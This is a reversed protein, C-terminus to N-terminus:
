LKLKLIYSGNIEQEQIIYKNISWEKLYKIDPQKSYVYPFYFWYTYGHPLQNFINFYDEKKANTTNIQVYRAPYFNLYRSYFEFESASAINYALINNQKFDNKIIELTTKANEQKYSSTNLLTKIYQHNYGSFYIISSIIIIGSYFIRKPSIKELPILCILLVIPILYLSTRQMLPYLKLLSMIIATLITYSFLNSYNDRKKIAYILGSVFLILAFLLKNNPYFYYDFNLKLTKLWSIPTLQLFKEDWFGMDMQSAHTQAAINIYFSSYVVIPFILVAILQNKIKSRYRFIQILLYPIIIFIAPFATLPLFALFIGLLISRKISLKKIEIESLILITIIILLTDTSYQKFEQCYYILQYNIAFLLNAILIVWINSIFRRSLIYFAPISLIGSLLPIFRLTYENIGFINTIIKTAIMFLPPAAQTYNLPKFYAFINNNDFINLALSCEDHWLPRGAVFAKIRLILGVFCIIGLLIYYVYKKNM